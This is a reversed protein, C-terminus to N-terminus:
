SGGGGPTHIEISDGPKIEVMACNGLDTISNNRILLNQGPLAESGPTLGCPANERRQSLISLKFSDLFKIRRIVGNGGRFHRGPGSSNERIEFKELLVPMSMEFYEPDTLRSNTMHTQVADTGNFSLGAGSGGCITEYYQLSENGFSLNSMSGASCALIGAANFLADVILQSTEVNGAAVAAPYEPNVLSREPLIIDVPDLLGANMPIERGCLVRLFYLVAAKTVAAPANFNGSNQRSSRSFDIQLRRNETRLEVAIFPRTGDPRKDLYVRSDGPRLTNLTKQMIVAANEKIFVAYASIIERSYESCLEVLRAAGRQCAAIQAKLDAINQEINRAQHLSGSLIETIETIQLRGQVVIKEGNFVIGEEDIHSSDAPMSGPSSGGVDAHHGRAAVFFAPPNEDKIFVPMIVTIDPLHTGGRYPNNIALADGRNLPTELVAELSSQMSGLHVPIHPANAILEGEANFLACSFDLRERINVSRATKQLIFGMETAISTFSHHFLELMVPDPQETSIKSKAAPPQKKLSLVSLQHDTIEAQWNHNIFVTDEDTILLAAENLRFGPPLRDRRYVPITERNDSTYTEVRAISDTETSKARGTAPNFGPLARVEIVVRALILRSETVTFGFQKEHETEFQNQIAATNGEPNSESVRIELQTESGEYHVHYLVSSELDAYYSDANLQTKLQLRRNEIQPSLESLLPDSLQKEVAIEATESRPAMGMGLASLIGSHHHFIIRRIGLSEAIEVAHQGGAGGYSVLTYDRLDHGRRVSIERIANAMNVDAIKLFGLAAETVSMDLKNEHLLKEFSKVAAETDPESDYGPGFVKQFFAPQIRGTVLNADTVTLPGGRGYCAPGPDAGASDPGVTFRGDTIKLISGGGAAVTHISLMPVSIRSGNIVSERTRELRGKYHFVDTSTGGMDFGIIGKNSESLEALKVAAAVGGAPGSLFSDCASFHDAPALGGDSKMLYVADFRKLLPKLYAKLVPNLYADAVATDARRVIRFESSVRHSLSVQEFGAKEALQAMLLEHEPNKLSHLLAVAVSQFGLKRYHSLRNRIEKQDIAKLVQGAANIRESVELVDEYLMRPKEIKLAFIDARNQYGIKLLDKFGATVAFLTKAGKRELLANTAVTTGMRLSVSSSKESSENLISDVAATVAENYLASSESLFKRTFFRGAPSIAAVDTFTGGRDIFLHWQRNM